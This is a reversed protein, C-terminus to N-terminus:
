ANVNVVFRGRTLGQMQEQATELAQSLTIETMIADLHTLDLDEALRNWAAIRDAKPRYVSDIGALTIGRLIFPMVTAPLDYGQALGCAAVTGGYKMSACINALTHSGAVDIAGAWREKALPRGKESLENRDMVQTAGLSLLYDKEEPRGSSAVVTYGLKALLSVAVSGVGGAAGTVLIEGQDPNVGQQELAMVCLMATYGATGITMAQKPTFASPLPVLWDGKVRAKQALGGWHGEGVGFGNLVVQDGAKFDAHDSHEVTGAFDIGPVMPFNRVVPSAGTIALSDKYNLTSYDVQILVDGEPLQQEEIQSMQASYGSDDKNILIAQM